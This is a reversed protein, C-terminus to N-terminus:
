KFDEEKVGENVKITKFQLTLEQAGMPTQVSMVMAFPLLLDAAKKYDKYTITQTITQGQAEESSEKKLLLGSKADYWETSPSGKAPTIVLKYADAGEVKEMGALELKYDSSTYFAQEIIGKKIKKEEVKDAKYAEKQGMQSAYGEQGNFVEKMVTMGNMSMEISEKNPAQEKRVVNLQQGQVALTGEMLLSRVNKITAEGGIANLYQNVVTQATVGAPLAAAGQATAVVPKAYKDYQKIPLGLRKLPESIQSSKGTVVVRTNSYNFYKQAVRQVDAVTVANINKLYNRYFDKPLNNILINTTFEAITSPNELQIAFNGNYLDKANQLEQATVPATRLLNIENLIDAVASDTKENRVSASASFKSQFRSGKISSYSGYTFGRKERLTTFLHSNAGGGLIYNALLVAHYDPHSVPLEVVNVVNIISQVANPVDVIDIETTAPNTVNTLTPLTLMSGKWTSFLKDALTRAATPTIDGIFTLYARSPTIYKKYQAKVDDLTIGKLSTETVFEGMPHKTGFALANVARGSIANPDKESSQFATINQTKVKDFSAKTFAPHQLADAMLALAQPFYRSLSSAYGGGSSLSVSAGIRDVAEDFADKPKTTTGENLMTGMISTVGTKAGETIPGADITLSASVVPLKKNEVVLVTLGNALKFQVPDPISLVPAPGSKPPHTRDIQAYTGLQLLLFSSLFLKKM